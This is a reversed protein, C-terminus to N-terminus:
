RVFFSIIWVVLTAGVSGALTAWTLPDRLPPELGYGADLIFHRIGSFMHQFLAWTFGLLVLQGIFSHIFWSFYAFSAADAAAALLFWALLLVGVYLGVGTARHVISVAM